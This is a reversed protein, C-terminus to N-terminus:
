NAVLKGKRQRKDRINDEWLDIPLWSRGDRVIRKSIARWCFVQCCTKEMERKIEQIYVDWQDIPLYSGNDNETRESTTRGCILQCCAKEMEVKDILYQGCM